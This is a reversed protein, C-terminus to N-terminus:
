YKESASWGSVVITRIDSMEKGGGGAFSESSVRASMPAISRIFASRVGAVTAAICLSAPVVVARKM